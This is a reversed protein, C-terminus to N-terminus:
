QQNQEAGSVWFKYGLYLLVLLLAVSIISAVLKLMAQAIAYGFILGLLGVIFKTGIGLNAFWMLFKRWHWNINIQFSEPPSQGRFRKAYESSSAELISSPDVETQFNQLQHPEDELYFSM